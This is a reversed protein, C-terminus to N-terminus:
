KITDFYSYTNIHVIGSVFLVVSSLIVNFPLVGLFLYYVMFNDDNISSIASKCCAILVDLGFANKYFPVLVLWNLLIAGLSWMCIGSLMSILTKKKVSLKDKILYYPLWIAFCVLVAILLDAIEGVYATSTGVFLLKFVFRLLGVIVGEIPGFMFVSIVIPLMSFNFELFSPFLIPINFKLFCYLVVSIASFSSLIVMKKVDFKKM